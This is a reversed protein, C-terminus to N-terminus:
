QRGFCTFFTFFFMHQKGEGNKSQIRQCFAVIHFPVKASSFLFHNYMLTHVCVHVQPGMLEYRLMIERWFGKHINVSLM